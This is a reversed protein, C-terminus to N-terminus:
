EPPPPTLSVTTTPQAVKGVFPRATLTVKTGIARDGNPVPFSFSNDGSPPLQYTTSAVTKGGIEATLTGICGGAAGGSCTIEPEVVGADVPAETAPLTATAPTGPPLNPANSGTPDFCGDWEFVPNDVTTGHTDTLTILGTTRSPGGATYCGNSHVNM